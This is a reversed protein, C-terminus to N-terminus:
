RCGILGTLEEELVERVDAGKVAADRSTHEAM